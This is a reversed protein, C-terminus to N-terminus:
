VSSLPMAMKAPICRRPFYLRGTRKLSVASNNKGERLLLADVTKYLKRHDKDGESHAAPPVHGCATRICGHLHYQSWLNRGVSFSKVTRGSSDIVHLNVEGRRSLMFQLQALDSVPNPFSRYHIPIKGRVLARPIGTTHVIPIKQDVWEAFGTDILAQNDGEFWDQIISTYIRGTTLTTFWTEMTFIM